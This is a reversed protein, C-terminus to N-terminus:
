KSDGTGTDAVSFAGYVVNLLKKVTQRDGKFKITVEADGWTGIGDLPVAKKYKVKLKM